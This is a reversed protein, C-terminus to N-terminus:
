CCCGGLPLVHLLHMSTRMKLLFNKTAEQLLDFRRRRLEVHIIKKNFVLRSDIVSAEPSCDVVEWTGNHELSKLEENIAQKWGNDTSPCPDDLGSSISLALDDFAFIIVLYKPQKRVKSSQRATGENEAALSKDFDDDDPGKSKTENEVVLIQVLESNASQDLNTM